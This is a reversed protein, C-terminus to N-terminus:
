SANERADSDSSGNVVPGNDFTEGNSKSTDKDSHVVESSAEKVPQEKMTVVGKLGQKVVEERDDGDVADHGNAAAAAPSHLQLQPAKEAVVDAKTCDGDMVHMRNLSVKCVRVFYLSYCHRVDLLFM